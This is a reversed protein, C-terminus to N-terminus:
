LDSSTGMAVFVNDVVKMDFQNFFFINLTFVQCDFNSCM